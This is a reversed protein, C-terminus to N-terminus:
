DEFSENQLARKSNRTKMFYGGVGIVAAMAPVVTKWNLLGPTRFHRISPKKNEHTGIRKNQQM